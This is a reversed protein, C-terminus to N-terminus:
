RLEEKMSDVNAWARCQYEGVIISLNSTTSKKQWVNEHLHALQRMMEMLLLKNSVYRLLQHPEVTSGYLRIYSYDQHHVFFDGHKRLADQASNSIRAVTVEGKIEKYIQYEWGDNRMAFSNWRREIKWKSYCKWIAYTGKQVWSAEGEATPRYKGHLLLYVLYSNLHFKRSTGM